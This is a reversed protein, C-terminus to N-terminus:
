ARAAPRGMAADQATMFARRFALPDSIGPVPAQETGTGSIKLSGFGFIRGLIGQEVEIGEIRNLNLEVTRRSIFGFKAFVRKNTVALETSKWRILAMALFILGIGVPLLLVGLLLLHAVSWLSIRGVYVVHEGETLAGEIYSAM